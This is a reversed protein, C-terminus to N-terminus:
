SRRRPWRMGRNTDATQGAPVALPVPVSTITTVLQAIPGKVEDPITFHGQDLAAMFGGAIPVDGILRWGRLLSAVRDTELDDAPNSHNLVISVREATYGAGGQSVPACLMALADATDSIALMNPSVVVILLDADLLLTERLEADCAALSPGAVITWPHHRRVLRLVTSLCASASQDVRPRNPGALLQVGPIMPVPCLHSPVTREDLQPAAYVDPAHGWLGLMKSMDAKMLDADVLPVTTTVGQQAALGSALAYAMWAAVVTAGAGGKASTVIIKRGQRVPSQVPPDVQGVPGGAPTMPTATHPLVVPSPQPM